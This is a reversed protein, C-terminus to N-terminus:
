FVVHFMNTANAIIYISTQSFAFSCNNKNYTHEGSYLTKKKFGLKKMKQNIEDESSGMTLGYVTVTPDTIVIETITEKGTIDPYGTITYVVYIDPTKLNGEEDEVPSYGSGYFMSAGFVGPVFTYGNDHLSESSVRQTIWFELNTDKPKDLYKCASLSLVLAIVGFIAKKMYRELKANIPGFPQHVVLMIGTIDM